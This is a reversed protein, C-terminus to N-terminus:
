AILEELRMKVPLGDQVKIVRVIGWGMRRLQHFLELCDYTLSFDHLRAKPSPGNRAGFRVDRVYRPPPDFCPLGERVYLDLIEGFSIIQMKSVLVQCPAALDQKRLEKEHPNPVSTGEVTM